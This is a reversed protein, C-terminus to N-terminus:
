KKIYRATGPHFSQWSHWFEQYAPVSNVQRGKLKGEVCNGNMDWMTNTISDKLMQTNVDLEFQLVANDIKKNWVHFSMEDNELVLVISTVNITDHIIRKQVLENWDYAKAKGDVLVGIVWSKFQWSASDRKELSSEITGVDFGKLDEYDKAFLTDPQMILTNPFKRIWADLRLQESPIENLSTDKLPGAVAVGTAQRWWSKTDEDEFMANFHDMGVLRFHQFKGNVMPSFVRGTRCVTCYTVMIPQGDITDQVQHHYGIIEIPYAKAQGNIEVGIILKNSDVKNESVTTLLKNKPQLFMQDALFKFNVMYFMVSYLCLLLLLLIRTWWKGNRFENFALPVLVVIGLLRIWWLNRHLFYAYDITESRQSSFPMIYFVRLFELIILLMLLLFLLWSKKM